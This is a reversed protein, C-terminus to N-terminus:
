CAASNRQAAVFAGPLAQEDQRPVDERAVRAVALLVATDVGVQVGEGVRM